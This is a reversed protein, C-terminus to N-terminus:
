HSADLDGELAFATVKKGGPQVAEGLPVLDGEPRHGTEEEFERIAAAEATENEGFEGKPISWSNRDKKRWFPGGPHALLVMPEGRVLRYMLIGASRKMLRGRCTRFITGM